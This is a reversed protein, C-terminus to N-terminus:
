FKALSGSKNNKNYLHYTRIKYAIVVDCIVTLQPVPSGLFLCGTIFGM